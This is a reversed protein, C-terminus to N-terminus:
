HSALNTILVFDLLYSFDVKLKPVGCDTIELNLTIICCKLVGALQLKYHEFIHPWNPQMAYVVSM